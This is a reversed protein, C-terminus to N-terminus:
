AARRYRRPRILFFYVGVLLYVVALAVQATITEVTPRYGTTQALFIPLRPWQTLRHFDLVAGDQLSAVANGLFAISTLMVLVVAVTLLLQIPLKRGYRFVAFALGGLVVAGAAAGASVWGALGVDFSTMARLYLATEFGQRYVATFGILALSGASGASVATWVRARLFELWRRQELRALLWISVVFSMVVACIGVVAEIVEESWPLVSLFADLAFFTIVTAAGGAAVGYLIPGKLRGHKTSELYGLLVALLLVAELGERFILTFSQAFVLIPAGLGTETLTREADNILARLEVILGRIEATSATTKTLGRIEAFKQEASLTLRPDLSRLALETLEFHDLYGAKAVAFAEERRGADLLRLTEDISERTRDLQEISRAIAEPSTADVPAQAPAAGAPSGFAVVLVLVVLAVVAVGRRSAQVVRSSLREQCRMSM